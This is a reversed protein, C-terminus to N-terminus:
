FQVDQCGTLIILVVKQVMACFSDLHFFVVCKFAFYQFRFILLHNELVHLIIWKRQNYTDMLNRMAQAKGLPKKNPNTQFGKMCLRFKIKTNPLLVGFPQISPSGTHGGLASFPGM